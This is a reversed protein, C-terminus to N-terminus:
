RPLLAKQQQTVTGVAHGSVRDRGASKSAYLAADARELLHEAGEQPALEAVGLSLTAQLLHGDISLPRCNIASRLNEAVGRAEALRTDPLIVLMEDGGWRGFQDYRRLRNRTRLAIIRLCEDGVRHGYEDNIHKFRDVDFFVVSMPLGSRHADAVANDLRESTAPRSMAGTLADFTALRSAQDRDRRLQQINDALGVTLVLGAIAFGAPFAYAVWDQSSWLGLLEGVRLLVLALVPVWSLLLFYAARQGRLSGIVSAVLVASAAAVVTVNAVTAVWPASTVFTVALLAGMVANCAHLVRLFRPQRKRLDLYFAIFSISAIVSIFGFLRSTRPDTGILEALWPIARLEGGLTLLYLAQAVLTVLLYAYSREGIGIWFGLALIAVVLMSTLIATRWMVHQLDRRHVEALPEISVRMPLASRVDVRLDVHQGAALGEPLPVILARTSYRPDADRGMLGRRLPLAEGPLWAEVSNLYPTQLVLQPAAAAPVAQMATVRWWHPGRPSGAIRDDGVTAFRADHDGGVVRAAPPDDDIQSLRLTQAPLAAVVLLGASLVATKWWRRSPSGM